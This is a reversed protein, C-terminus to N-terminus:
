SKHELIFDSIADHRIYEEEVNEFLGGQVQDKKEYWYLPFCQSKEVFDLSIKEMQAAPNLV